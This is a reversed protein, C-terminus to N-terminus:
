AAGSTAQQSHQIFGCAQGKVKNNLIAGISRDHVLKIFVGMPVKVRVRYVAMSLHLMCTVASTSTLKARVKYVAM